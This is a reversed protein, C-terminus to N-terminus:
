KCEQNYFTVIKEIDRKKFEKQEIKNVLAQCDKFYLSAAKKFNKSFLSTSGLHTIEAENGKKVYYNSISYYHESTMMPAGSGVGGMPAGATYGESVKKYLNVSGLSVEEVISYLGKGKVKLYIYKKTGDYTDMKVSKLDKFHYKKSKSGETKFKIQYDSALKGVGVKEKGDNFYLTTKNSLACSFSLISIICITIYTKLSM